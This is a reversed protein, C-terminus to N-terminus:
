EADKKRTIQILPKLHALLIIVCLLIVALKIYILDPIDLISSSTILKDPLFYFVLPSAVSAITNAIFLDKKLLLKVIAWFIGWLLVAIPFTLLAVGVATSLGRGGKFKLFVSYNHGLVSFMTSVIVLWFNNATIYYALLVTIFGKLMDLIFVVVGIWKKGTTEYSNMAGVNGSGILRIDKKAYIKLLIYAFPIAGILYSLIAIFYIM